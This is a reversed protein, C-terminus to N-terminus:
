ATGAAVPPLGFADMKLSDMKLSDMKLSDMGPVGGAWVLSDWPPTMNGGLPANGGL